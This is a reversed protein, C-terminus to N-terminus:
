FEKVNFNKSVYINSIKGNELDDILLEINRTRPDGYGGGGPTNIVLIDGENLDVTDKSHLQVKEGKRRIIYHNARLGARGGSLGWPELKVRETAITVTARGRLLKYVRRIGLGGRYKGAGCSDQILSYELILIPYEREIVEIPTNLTNTMNVHVGDVGDMNPRAGMGGGITEYFVWKRGNFEGGIMVNNMSGHSAAPVRDPLVNHMAKFIVDVIRQSTELNGLSVPAPKIPNVITGKPAIIKLLKYFGSNMPMDPDLIAKLAFSTAAVTVGYVANLSNDVQRHTGRFDVIIENSRVNISVSINLLEDNLEVYDEGETTVNPIDKLINLLYRQSYKIAEKWAEVTRSIGEKSLIKLINKIGTNISAIQAYLDGKFYRPIRTRMAIEEITKTKVEGRCVIKIPEIVVGEEFLSRAMFISGPYKGGVDVHHAKNAILCIVEGKYFVPSVLLIDNLHTGAIYPDNVMVIDGEELELGERELFDLTNKLGIMMSGLHVPIHEAQAILEGNSLAIACSLDRRDRINPSYATKQLIIGMEEAVYITSYYIPEFSYARM